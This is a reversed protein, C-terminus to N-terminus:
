MLYYFHLNQANTKMVTMLTKHITFQEDLPLHNTRNESINSIAYILLTLADKWRRYYLCSVQGKLESTEIVRTKTPGDNM